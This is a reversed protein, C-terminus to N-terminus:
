VSLGVSNNPRPLYMRPSGIMCLQAQRRKGVNDDRRLGPGVERAARPRRTQTMPSVRSKCDTRRFPPDRGEGPHRNPASLAM